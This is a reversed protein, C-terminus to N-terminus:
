KSKTFIETETMEGDQIRITKFSTNDEIKVLYVKANGVSVENVLFINFDYYTSKVMHRIEKPLKDEQYTRVEGVPRGKPDYYAKTKIGDETFIAVFGDEVAFWSAKNQKDYSKSFNKVAKENISSLAAGASEDTALDKTLNGAPLSNTQAFSFSALALFPLIATVHKFFSHKMTKFEVPSTSKTNQDNQAFVPVAVIFALVALLAKM